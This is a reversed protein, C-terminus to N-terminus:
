KSTIIFIGNKEITVKNLDYKNGGICTIVNNNGTFNWYGEILFRKVIEKQSPLVKFNFDNIQREARQNDLKETLTM